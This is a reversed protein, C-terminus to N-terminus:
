PASDELERIIRVTGSRLQEAPEDGRLGFLVLEFYGDEAPLTLSFIDFSPELEKLPMTLLTEGSEQDLWRVEYAPYSELSSLSINLLFQDEQTRITAQGGGSRVTDLGLSQQQSSAFASFREAQLQEILTRTLELQSSLHATRLGFGLAVLAFGAALLTSWHKRWRGAARDRRGELSVVNSPLTSTSAGQLLTRAAEVAELHELYVSSGDIELQPPDEAELADLCAAVAELARPAELSPLRWSAQFAVEKSVRTAQGCRAFLPEGAARSLDLDRSGRLPADDVPVLRGGDDSWSVVLWETSEGAPGSWTVIDAPLIEGADQPKEQKHAEDRAGHTARRLAERRKDLSMNKKRSTPPRSSRGPRGAPIPAPKDPHDGAGRCASAMDSLTTFLQPLRGRPIDLQRSLEADGPRGRAAGEDMMASWFALFDLLRHLYNREKMSGRRDISGRLCDLLHKLAQRQEFEASPQVLLDISSAGDGPASEGGTLLAVARRRALAKLPEVLGRLIFASVDSGTLESILAYLRSVVGRRRYSMVLDPMLLECWRAVLEDDLTETVDAPEFPPLALVSGAHIKGDEAESVIKLRGEGVMQRAADRAIDFVRYGVPDQERQREFLFLRVNVRVAGDIDGNKARRRLAAGRDLIAFVYADYLLDTFTDQDNFSQGVIGLFRPPATFLGRRRMEARLLSALRELVSAFLEEDPPRHESQVIFRTLLSPM